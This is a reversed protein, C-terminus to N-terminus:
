TQRRQRRRALAGLMALGAMMLAYTQPEPVASPPQELFAYGSESQVTGTSATMHIDFSHLGDAEAQCAMSQYCLTSSSVGWSFSLDTHTPVTLDFRARGQWREDPLGQVFEWPDTGIEGLFSRYYTNGKVDWLVKLLGTFGTEREIFWSDDSGPVGTYDPNKELWRLAVTFSLDYQKVPYTNQPHPIWGVQSLDLQTDYGLDFSLTSSEADPSLIQLQDWVGVSADAYTRDGWVSQTRASSFLKVTGTQPDFRAEASAQHLGVGSTHDISTAVTTATTVNSARDYQDLRPLVDM